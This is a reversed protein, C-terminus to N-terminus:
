EFIKLMGCRGNQNFSSGSICRCEGTGCFRTNGGYLGVCYTNNTTDDITCQSGSQDASLKLELYCLSFNFFLFSNLNNVVDDQTMLCPISIVQHANVHQALLTQAQHVISSM